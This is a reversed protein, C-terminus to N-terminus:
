IETIMMRFVSSFSVNSNAAMATNVLIEVKPKSRVAMTCQGGRVLAVDTTICPVRKAHIAEVVNRSEAKLDSPVFYLGVNVKSADAASTLLPKLTLNGVKLGAGLMRQLEEAERRSAADASGYVIGVLVEGTLPKSLFSLARGAIQLDSAAVQASAHSTVLAAFTAAIGTM